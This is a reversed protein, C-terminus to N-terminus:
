DAQGGQRSRVVSCGRNEVTDSTRLGKALVGTPMWVRPAAVPTVDLVLSLDSAADCAGLPSIHRGGRQGVAERRYDVLV